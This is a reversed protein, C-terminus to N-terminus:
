LTPSPSVALSIVDWNPDVVMADADIWLVLDVDDRALMARVALVKGFRHDTNPSAGDLSYHSGDLVVFEYGKQCAWEANIAASFKAWWVIQTM